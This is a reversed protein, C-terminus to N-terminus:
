KFIGGIGDLLTLIASKKGVTQTAGNSGPNKLQARPFNTVGIPVLIVQQFSASVALANETKKDTTVGLSTLLMNYYTRKPTVVNFPTLVAPPVPEQLTLLTQYISALTQGALINISFLMQISLNVPTKFAHDSIMAGQQVPQQTVQLTDTTSESLTVYGSIGAFSRSPGISFFTQPQVIFSM